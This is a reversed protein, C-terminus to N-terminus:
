LSILTGSNNQIWRRIQRSCRTLFLVTGCEVLCAADSVKSASLSGSNQVYDWKTEGLVMKEESQQIRDM